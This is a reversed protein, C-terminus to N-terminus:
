STIDCEGAGTIAILKDYTVPVGSSDNGAAPYVTEYKSLSSDIYYEIESERFPCVEGPKFGLVELLEDAYASQTEFGGILSSLHLSVLYSYFM